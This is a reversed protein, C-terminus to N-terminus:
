IHHKLIEFAASGRTKYGYRLIAPLPETPLCTKNILYILHSFSPFYVYELTLYFFKFFVTTHQFAFWSSCCM